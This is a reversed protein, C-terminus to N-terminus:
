VAMKFSVLSRVPMNIIEQLLSRDSIYDEALSLVSNFAGNSLSKAVLKIRNRGKATTIAPAAAVEKESGILPL